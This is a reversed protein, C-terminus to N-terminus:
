SSQHVRCASAATSCSGLVAVDTTAPIAKRIQEVQLVIRERDRSNYDIFFREITAPAQSTGDKWLPGASWFILRLTSCRPSAGKLHVTIRNSYRTRENVLKNREEVM